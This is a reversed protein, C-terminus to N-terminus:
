NNSFNYVDMRPDDDLPLIYGKKRLALEVSQLPPSQIIVQSANLMMGIDEDQPELRFEMDEVEILDEILTALEQDQM